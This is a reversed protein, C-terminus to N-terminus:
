IVDTIGRSMERDATRLSALQVGPRPRPCSWRGGGILSGVLWWVAMVSSLTRSHFRLEVRLQASGMSALRTQVLDLPLHKELRIIKRTSSAFRDGFCRWGSWLCYLVECNVWKTWYHIRSPWKRRRLPGKSWYPSDGRFERSQAELIFESLCGTAAHYCLTQCDM